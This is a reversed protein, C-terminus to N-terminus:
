ISATVRHFHKFFIDRAKYPNKIGSPCLDIFRKVIENDENIWIYIKAAFKDKNDLHLNIADLIFEVKRKRLLDQLSNALGSNSVGANAGTANTSNSNYQIQINIEQERISNYLNSLYTWQSVFRAYFAAYVAAYIGLIKYMNNDIISAPPTFSWSLIDHVAYLCLCILSGVFFTRLAVATGGNPFFNFIWEASVYDIFKSINERCIFTKLKISVLFLIYPIAIITAIALGCLLILIISEFMITLFLLYIEFYSFNDM